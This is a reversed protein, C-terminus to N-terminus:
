QLSIIIIIQIRNKKKVYVIGNFHLRMKLCNLHKIQDDISPSVLIPDNSYSLQKQNQQNQQQSEHLKICFHWHEMINSYPM